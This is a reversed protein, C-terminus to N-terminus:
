YFCKIGAETAMEPPSRSQSRQRVTGLVDNRVPTSQGGFFTELPQSFVGDMDDMSDNM